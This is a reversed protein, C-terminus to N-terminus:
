PKKQSRAGHPFRGAQKMVAQLRSRDGLELHDPNVCRANLCTHIVWQDSAIARQYKRRAMIRHCTTMIKENNDVRWAGIMGYGQRHQPGSWLWCDSNPDPAHHRDYYNQNYWIDYLKQKEIRRRGM